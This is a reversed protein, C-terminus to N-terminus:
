PRKLQLYEAAALLRQPNDRFAGLGVNCEHCLLGRVKGTQHDHDVSLKGRVGCPEGCIACGNNQAALLGEYTELSLGYKHKLASAFVRRPHDRRWGRDRRARENRHAADWKRSREKKCMRCNRTGYGTISTVIYTNEPTFLHGHKCVTKAANTAACGMLAVAAGWYFVGGM